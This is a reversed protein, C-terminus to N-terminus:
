ELYSKLNAEIWYKNNNCALKLISGKAGFFKCNTQDKFNWTRWDGVRFVFSRVDRGVASNDCIYQTGTSMLKECQGKIPGYIPQFSISHEFDILRNERIVSYISYNSIRYINLSDSKLPLVVFVRGMSYRDLALSMLDSPVKAIIKQVVSSTGDVAIKKISIFGHNSTVKAQEYFIFYIFGFRTGFYNFSRHYSESQTRGVFRIQKQKKNVFCTVEANALVPHVYMLDDDKCQSDVFYSHDVVLVQNLFRQEEFFLSDANATQQILFSMLAVTFYIKMAIKGLDLRSFNKVFNSTM